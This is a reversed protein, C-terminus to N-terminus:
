VLLTLADLSSAEVETRVPGLPIIAGARVFFPMRELPAPVTVGAPGSYRVHTWFDYWDGAPLYVPWHTAGKRTVPAVLLDDGWLYQHGLEWVNPDDPYNLVLARM